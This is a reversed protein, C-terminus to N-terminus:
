LEWQCYLNGSGTFTTAVALLNSINSGFTQVAERKHVEEALQGMQRELNVQSHNQYQQQTINPRNDDDKWRFNPHNHRRPNNSESFPDNRLCNGYVGNVEENSPAGEWNQCNTVLHSPIGCLSCVDHSVQSMNPVCKGGSTAMVFQQNHYDLGDYFVKVLEWKPVDHHPFTRLLEKLRSFAEHFQESPIQRFSKIKNRIVATKSISYFEDLFASQMESWSKISCPELSTFWAKAQDKLSFLFLRLRVGDKTTNSVAGNAVALYVISSPDEFNGPRYYSDVDRPPSEAGTADDDGPMKTFLEELGAFDLNTSFQRVAKRRLRASREVELDYALPLARGPKTGDFDHREVDLNQNKAKLKKINANCEDFQQLSCCVFLQKPQQNNYGDGNETNNSGNM